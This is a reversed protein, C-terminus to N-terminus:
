GLSMAEEALAEAQKKLQEEFAKNAAPAVPPPDAALSVSVVFFLALLVPLRLFTM